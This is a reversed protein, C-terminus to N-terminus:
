WVWGGRLRMVGVFILVLSLGVVILNNRYIISYEELKSWKSSRSAVFMALLMTVAHEIRYTPFGGGLSFLLILGLIFNIGLSVAYGIMLQRDLKTYPRKQILGISNKVLLVVALIAVIWRIEGHITLITSM